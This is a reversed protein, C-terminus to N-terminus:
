PLPESGKTRNNNKIIIKLGYYMFFMAPVCLLHDLKLVYYLLAISKQNVVTEIQIHWFDVKSIGLLALHEDM